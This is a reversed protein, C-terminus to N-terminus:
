APAIGKKKRMKLFEGSILLTVFIGTSMGGLWYEIRNARWYETDSFSARDFETKYSLVGWAVILLALLLCALRSWRALSQSRPYFGGAMASLVLIGPLLILIHLAKM